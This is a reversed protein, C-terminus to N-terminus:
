AVHCFGTDFSPFFFLVAAWSALRKMWEKEQITSLGWKLWAEMLHWVIDSWYNCWMLYHCLLLFSAKLYDEKQSRYGGSWGWVDIETSNGLHVSFKSLRGKHIGVCSNRDTRMRKSNGEIWSVTEILTDDLCVWLYSAWFQSNGEVEGSVWNGPGKEREMEVFGYWDDLYLCNFSWVEGVWGNREDGIVALLVGSISVLPKLIDNPLKVM